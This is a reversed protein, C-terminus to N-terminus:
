SGLAVRIVIRLCPRLPLILSAASSGFPVRAPRGSASRWAAHQIGPSSTLLPHRSACCLFREVLQHGELPPYPEGDLVGAARLATRAHSPRGRSRM